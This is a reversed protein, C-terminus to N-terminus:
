KSEHDDHPKGQQQLEDILRNQFQRAKQHKALSKEKSEEIDGEAAASPTTTTTNRQAQLCQHRQVSILEACDQEPRHQGQANLEDTLEYQLKVHAKKRDVGKQAENTQFLKPKGASVESKEEGTNFIDDIAAQARAFWTNNNARRTSERLSQLPRDDDEEAAADKPKVMIPRNKDDYKVWGGSGGFPASVAQLSVGMFPVVLSEKWVARSPLGVMSLVLVILLVVVWGRAAGFVAGGLYNMGSLDLKGALGYFLTGVIKVAVYVCFFIAVMAIPAALPSEGESSSFLPVVEAYFEKAVWIGCVWAGLGWLSRFLGKFIGFVVSLAVVVVAALDLVNTTIATILDM